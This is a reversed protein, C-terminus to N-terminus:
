PFAGFRGTEHRTDRASTSPGRRGWLSRHSDGVEVLLAILNQDFNSRPPPPRATNRRRFTIGRGQSHGSGLSQGMVPGSRSRDESAARILERALDVWFDRVAKTRVFLNSSRRLRHATLNPRSGHDHDCGTLRMLRSGDVKKNAGFICSAPSCMIM